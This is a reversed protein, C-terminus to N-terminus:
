EEVDLDEGVDLGFEWTDVWADYNTSGHLYDLASQFPAIVGMRMGSEMTVITAITDPQEPLPDTQMYTRVVIQQLDAFLREFEYEHQPEAIEVVVYFEDDDEPLTGFDVTLLEAKNAALEAEINQSWPAYDSKRLWNGLKTQSLVIILLIAFIGIIRVAIRYGSGSSRM